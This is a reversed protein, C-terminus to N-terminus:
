DRRATSDVPRRGSAQGMFQWDVASCLPWRYRDAHCAVLDSEKWRGRHRIRNGDGIASEVCEDSLDFISIAKRDRGIRGRNRRGRQHQESLWKRLALLQQARGHLKPHQKGM